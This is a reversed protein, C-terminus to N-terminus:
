YINIPRIGFWSLVKCLLFWNLGKKLPRPLSPTIPNKLEHGFKIEWNTRDRSRPGFTVFPSDLSTVKYGRTRLYSNQTSELYMRNLGRSQAESSWPSRQFFHSVCVDSRLPYVQVWLLLGLGLADMSHFISGLDLVAPLTFIGTGHITQPSIFIM